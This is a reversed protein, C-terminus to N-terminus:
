ADSVFTCLATMPYRTISQLLVEGTRHARTSAYAAEALAVHWDYAPQCRSQHPIVKLWEIHQTGATCSCSSETTLETKSVGPSRTYDHQADSGSDPNCLDADIIITLLLQKPDKIKHWIRLGQVLGCKKIHLISFWCVFSLHPSLARMLLCIFVRIDLM